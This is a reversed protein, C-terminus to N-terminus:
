QQARWVSDKTTGPIRLRLSLDVAHACLAGALSLVVPLPGANIMVALLALLLCIGAANSATIGARNRGLRWLLITELALLAIVAAIFPASSFITLLSSM